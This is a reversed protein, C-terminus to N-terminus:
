SSGGRPPSVGGGRSYAFTSGYGCPGSYFFTLPGDNVLLADAVLEEGTRDHGPIACTVTAAAHFHDRIVVTVHNHIRLWQRRRTHDVEIAVRRVDLLNSAKWAW